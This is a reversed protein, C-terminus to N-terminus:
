PIYMDWKKSYIHLSLTAAFQKPSSFGTRLMVMYRQWRAETNDCRYYAWPKILPFISRKPGQKCSYPRSIPFPLRNEQITERLGQNEKVNTWSSELSQLDHDGVLNCALICWRRVALTNALPTGLIVLLEVLMCESVYGNAKSKVEVQIHIDSVDM